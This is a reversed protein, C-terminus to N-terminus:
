SVSSVTNTLSVTLEDHDAANALLTHKSSIKIKGLDGVSPPAGDFTVRPVTVTLIKNANATNVWKFRMDIKDGARYHTVWTRSDYLLDAELTATRGEKRGAAARLGVGTLVYHDDDLANDCSLKFNQIQLAYNESAPNMVAESMQDYTVPDYTPFTLAVLAVSAVNKPLLELELRLPQESEQILTWKSVKCASYQDATSGGIAGADKNVYGTIQGLAAALSFAHTYIGGVPGTTNVSGMCRKLLTEVGEWLFDPAVNIMGNMKGTIVQKPSVQGLRRVVIPARGVSDQIEPVYGFITPPHVPTGYTTEVAWGFYSDHGYGQSM